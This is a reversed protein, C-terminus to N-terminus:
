TLAHVLERVFGLPGALTPAFAALPGGRELMAPLPPMEVTAGAESAILAGALIDWSNVHAEYFLDAVGSAVRVLGLAAAGLRRYDVGMDNLRRQLAQYDEFSTRRSCGLIALAEAPDSRTAVAIRHEGRWAGGGRAASYVSQTTADYIVGLELVGDRVFAISVAWHRLGRIFNTTGDIPDVVWFGATDPRGGTEEGLFGDEPFATKLARRITEEGRRDAATVFDQLGKREFAPAKEARFREIQCGVEGALSRAFNLRPLLDEDAVANM